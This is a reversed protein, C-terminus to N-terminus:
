KKKEKEKEAKIKNVRDLNEYYAIADRRIRMNKADFDPLSPLKLLQLKTARPLPVAFM